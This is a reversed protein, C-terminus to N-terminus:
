ITVEVPERHPDAVAGDYGTRIGALFLHMHQSSPFAGLLEGSLVDSVRYPMPTDRLYSLRFIQGDSPRGNSVEEM